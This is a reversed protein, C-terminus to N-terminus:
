SPVSLNVPPDRLTMNHFIPLLVVNVQRSFEGPKRGFEIQDQMVMEDDAPLAMEGHPFM